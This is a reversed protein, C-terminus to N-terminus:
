KFEIDVARGSVFTVTADKYHWVYRHLGSAGHSGLHEVRDPKGFVELIKDETTNSGATFLQFTKADGAPPPKTTQPVCGAALLAAIMLRKM